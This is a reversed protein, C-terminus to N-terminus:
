FDRDIGRLDRGSFFFGAWQMPDAYPQWQPKHEFLWALKELGAKSDAGQALGALRKAVQALEEGRADRLWLQAERLAQPVPRKRVLTAEMLRDVLFLTPGDDVPWLSSLVGKAGLGLFAAPLGQFENAIDSIQILGSECASLIALDPGGSSVASQLDAVTLRQHGALVLHSKLPDERNFSAHGAFHFVQASRLAQKVSTATARAGTLLMAKSPPRRSAASRAEAEAFLLDPDDTPNGVTVLRPDKTPRHGTARATSRLLLLSPAYMVPVHEVLPRGDGMLAAHIPLVALEGQTIWAVITPVIGERQLAAFVPQVLGNGLWAQSNRLQSTWSQRTAEQSVGLRVIERYAGLWGASDGDGARGQMFTVVADADFSDLFVTRMTWGKHSRFLAFVLAGKTSVIPVLVLTGIPASISELGGAQAVEGPVVDKLGLRRKLLRTKGQEAIWLGEEARGQRALAYAAREFWRKSQSASKLLVAQQEIADFVSRHRRALVSYLEASREWHGNEFELNALNVLTDAHERPMAQETRVSLAQQYADLACQYLDPRARANCANGLNNQMSAWISPSATARALAVAGRYAAVAQDLAATEGAAFRARFYDGRDALLQAQREAPLRAARQEAKALIEGAADLQARDGWSALTLRIDFQIALPKVTEELRKRQELWGVVKGLIEDAERLHEEESVRTSELALALNVSTRVWLSQAEGDNPDLRDRAARFWRVAELMNQIREGEQRAMFASGLGNAAEVYTDRELRPDIEKLAPKLLTIAREVNRGYTPGEVHVFAMALNVQLRVREMRNGLRRQISIAEEFADVARDLERAREGGAGYGLSILLRGRGELASARDVTHRRGVDTALYQDIAKLAAVRATPEGHRFIRENIDALLEYYDPLLGPLWSADQPQTSLAELTKRADVLAPLDRAAYMQLRAVALSTNFWLRQDATPQLLAASMKAYEIALLWDPPKLGTAGAHFLSLEYAAAAAVTPYELINQCALGATLAASRRRQAGLEKPRDLVTRSLEGSSCPVATAEAPQASAHM